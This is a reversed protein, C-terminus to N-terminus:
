HVMDLSLLLFLLSMFQTNLYTYLDNDLLELSPLKSFLGTDRKAQVPAAESSPSSSVMKGSSTPSPDASTTRRTSSLLESSQFLTEQPETTAQWKWISSASQAMSHCMESSRTCTTTELGPNIDSCSASLKSTIPERRM